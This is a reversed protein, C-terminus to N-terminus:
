RLRRTQKKSKRAKRTKKGRRGGAFQTNDSSLFPDSTSRTIIKKKGSDDYTIEAKYGENILNTITGRIYYSDNEQYQGQQQIHVKVKDGIKFKDFNQRKKREIQEQEVREKERRATTNFPKVIKVLDKKISISPGPCSDIKIAINPHVSSSAIAVTATMNSISTYGNICTFETNDVKQIIDGVAFIGKSVRDKNYNSIRANSM